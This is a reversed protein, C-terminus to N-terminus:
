AMKMSSGGSSTALPLGSCSSFHIALLHDEDAIIADAEVHSVHALQEANKLTQVALLVELAGTNPQRVDLADDMLVATADPDLCFGVLARWM